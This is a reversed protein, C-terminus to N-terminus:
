YPIEEPQKIGADCVEFEHAYGSLLMNFVQKTKVHCRSKGFLKGDPDKWKRTFFIREPFKGPKHTSVVTLQMEGMADAYEATEGEYGYQEFRIGPKWCPVDQAGDPDMESWSSRVFPYAVTYTEGVEIEM